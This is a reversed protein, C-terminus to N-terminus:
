IRGADGEDSPDAPNKEFKQPDVAALLALADNVLASILEDRAQADNWAIDM